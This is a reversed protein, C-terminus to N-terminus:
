QRERDGEPCAAPQAAKLAQLELKHQEKLELERSALAGGLAVLGDMLKQSNQAATVGDMVVEHTGNTGKTINLGQMSQASELGLAFAYFGPAKVAACGAAVACALACAMTMGITKKKM